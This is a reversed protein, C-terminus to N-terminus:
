PRVLGSAPEDAILTRLVALIRDAAGPPGFLTAVNERQVPQLSDSGAAVLKEALRRADAVCTTSHAGRRVLEGIENFPSHDQREVFVLPREFLQFEVLMSLGDTLLLDAAAITAPYNGPDSVATNPLASWLELWADYDARSVPSSPSATFPRLAPHALFVFECDQAESAWGLMPEALSPFAGFDSWGTAISHHASWAIRHRRSNSGDRRNSKVPWRPSITRLLDAKPHGTVYFQTGGRAGQARAMTAMMDNACFVAWAGRHYASDVASNPTEACPVNQVINMTEYPVLCTRAFNIRQAGLEEDIDPDWQSQRFILDPEITKILRLTHGPESSAIRLHPVGREELAQHVTDEFTAATEGPFHRPISAVIPEFDDAAAMLEYLEHCSDWAEILHVLFLVRTTRHRLTTARAALHVSDRVETVLAADATHGLQDQIQRVASQVDGIRREVARVRAAVSRLTRVPHRVMVM